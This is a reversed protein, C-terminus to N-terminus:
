HHRCIYIVATSDHLDRAIRNRDMEQTALIKTSYNMLANDLEDTDVIKDVSSCFKKLKEFSRVLQKQEELENNVESLEKLIEELADKYSVDEEYTDEEELPSFMSFNPNKHKEREALIYEIQKKKYELEKMRSLVQNHQKSNQEQFLVIFDLADRYENKLVELNM